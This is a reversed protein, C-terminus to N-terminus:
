KKGGKGLTFFGKKEKGGGKGEAGSAPLTQARSTGAAEEGGGAAIQKISNVWASM